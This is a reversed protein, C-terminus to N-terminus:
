MTGIIEIARDLQTDYAKVVNGEDDYDYTISVEFDSTLGVEDICDGNPTLWKATTYKAKSGDSLDYTQQVKGKGFSTNGVLYVKAGYSYKLSAALIESASATTKNMLIVIPYNRAEDTTDYFSEKGDKNELSYILKGNALFYNAINECVELYGGTNGRLDIILKEMGQSELDSLANKVQTDLTKSFIELDMYGINNDKMEYYVDKSILTEKEAYFTLEEEGRLVKIEIKNAESNKILVSLATASYTTVDVGNIAIIEDNAELGARKAPTDDLVRVVTRNKIEIGIGEYTGSLREELSQSTSPDLYTTYSDGLYNLMSNIASDVLKEKDVDEYYGNTINSYVELLENLAADKTIQEYTLGTRNRYSSTIIVGITIASTISTVCIIIIVTLLNFGKSDKM